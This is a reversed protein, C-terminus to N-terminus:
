VALGILGVGLAVALPITFNDDIHQSMLEAVAGAMAGALAIVVARGMGIEPYYIALTALSLLGASVVFALTGELSRGARLRIRGFRRGILAATPDGVALVIVALACSMPPALLALLLLATAYWTSSNVRHHEHPHAVRGFLKMLMTNLEPSFRRFLELMWASVAFFGSLAIMTFPTLVHQILLLVGVGSSVHFANRTYNTPRLSPVHIAQTKLAAALAEYLPRTRQRFAAWDLSTTIAASSGAADQLIQDFYGSLDSLLSYLRALGGDGLPAEVSALLRHLRSSLQRLRERTALELEARWTSPDLTQLLGYLEEAFTKSELCLVHQM